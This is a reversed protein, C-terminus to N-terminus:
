DGGSAAPLTGSATRALMSATAYAAVHGMWLTTTWMPLVVALTPAQGTTGLGIAFWTILSVASMLAANVALEVQLRDHETGRLQEMRRLKLAGLAAGGAAALLWSAGWATFIEAPV